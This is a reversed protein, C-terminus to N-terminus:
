GADQDFEIVPGDDRVARKALVRATNIELNLLEALQRIPQSPAMRCNPFMQSCNANSRKSRRATRPMSSTRTSTSRRRSVRTDWSSRPSRSRCAFTTSSHIHRFQHWTVRGLDAAEAAPQLINRRLKSERLPQGNRNGFVSDDSATRKARLRHERPWSIAQPGWPITQRSKQTKPSQFKGEYVSERVSLTGIELDLSRWPVALPEGIRLWRLRSSGWLTPPHCTGGCPKLLM